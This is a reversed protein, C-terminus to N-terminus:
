QMRSFLLPFRPDLTVHTVYAWISPYSPHRTTFITRPRATNKIVRTQYPYFIFAVSAIFSPQPPRVSSCKISWLPCVPKFHVSLAFGSQWHKDHSKPYWARKIIGALSLLQSPGPSSALYVRKWWSMMVYLPPSFHANISLRLVQMHRYRAAFPCEVTELWSWCLKYCSSFLRVSSVTFTCEYILLTPQVHRSFPDILFIVLHLYLM